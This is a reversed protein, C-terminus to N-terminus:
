VWAGCTQPVLLWQIVKKWVQIMVADFFIKKKRWKLKTWMKPFAKQFCWFLALDVALFSLINFKM